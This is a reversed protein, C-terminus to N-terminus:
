CYMYFIGTKMQKNNYNTLENIQLSRRVMYQLLQTVVVLVRTVAPTASDRLHAWLTLRNTMIKSWLENIWICHIPKHSTHKYWQKWILIEKLNKDPTLQTCKYNVVFAAVSIIELKVSIIM